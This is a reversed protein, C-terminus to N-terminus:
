RPGSGNGREDFVKRLFANRARDSNFEGACDPCLWLEVERSEAGSTGKAEFQKCYWVWAWKTGASMDCRECRLKAM